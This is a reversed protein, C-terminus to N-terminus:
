QLFKFRRLVSIVHKLQWNSNKFNRKKRKRKKEEQKTTTIKNKKEIYFYIHLHAPILATHLNSMFIEIHTKFRQFDQSLNESKSFM